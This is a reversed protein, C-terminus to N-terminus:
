QSAGPNPCPHDLILRTVADPQELNALHAGHQVVALQAGPVATAIVRADGDALTALDDSGAIVLTPASMRRLDNRLDMDAIAECCAAFGAPPTAQMSKKLPGVVEGHAQAFSPTFWRDLVADAIAAYGQERVIRARELWPDAPPLHASTCLPVLRNVREAAIIALWMGVMGGLSLGVHHFRRVGLHDSLGLVARGLEELSIPGLPVPSTGHGLHDYRIVRSRENLVARQPDWMDRTTGPSSGLILPPKPNAGLVDHGLLGTL